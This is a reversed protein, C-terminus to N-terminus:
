VDELGIRESNALEGLFVMSLDMLNGEDMLKWLLNEQAVLKTSINLLKYEADTDLDDGIYDTGTVSCITLRKGM